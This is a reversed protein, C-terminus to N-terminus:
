KFVKSSSRATQWHRVEEHRRLRLWYAGFFSTGLVSGALVEWRLRQFCFRFTPLPPRSRVASRPTIFGSNAVAYMGELYFDANEASFLRKLLIYHM